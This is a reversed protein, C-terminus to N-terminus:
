RYRWRGLEQTPATTIVAGVADMQNSNDEELDGSGGGSLEGGAGDGGGGDGGSVGGGGQPFSSSAGEGEGGDELPDLIGEGMDECSAAAAGGSTDASGGCWGCCWGGGGGGGFGLGVKSGLTEQAITAIRYTVLV